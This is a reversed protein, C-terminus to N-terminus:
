TAKFPILKYFKIFVVIGLYQWVGSFLELLLNGGLTGVGGASTVLTSLKMNDPSQPLISAFNDIMSPKGDDSPKSISCINSESTGASSRARVNVCTQEVITGASNDEKFATFTILFDSTPSTVDAFTIPNGNLYPQWRPYLCVEKIDGYGLNSEYRYYPYYDGGPSLQYVPKRNVVVSHYNYLHPISYYQAFASSPFSLLILLFLFVFRLM